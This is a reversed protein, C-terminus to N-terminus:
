QVLAAARHARRSRSGPIRRPGYFVGHEASLYRLELDDRGLPRPANESQSLTKFGSDLVVHGRQRSSVTALVSLAFQLGEVHCSERYMADMFIGGGAQLETIGEFAATITYTGTGGASSSTAAIARGRPPCGQQRDAEGTGRPM